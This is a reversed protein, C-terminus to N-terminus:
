HNLPHITPDDDFPNENGALVHEPLDDNDGDVVQVTEFQVTQMDIRTPESEVPQILLDTANQKIIVDRITWHGNVPIAMGMGFGEIRVNEIRAPGHTSPNGVDLGIGSKATGDNFNFVSIDKGFGVIRANTLNLRENYNLLVGDRNGWVTLTDITPELTDIYAPPPSRHFDSEEERGLYHKAHIYRARFGITAGYSENGRVEALPAWWVPVSQRNPILDGNPLSNVPLSVRAANGTDPEIIGDTWFIIGHASAGSAVNDIMSVRNGTLWFGDGDNGYDMLFAGLDPDIANQDDLTFSRNVSRIAINGRMSGIEDGAETYFGAGQLGYSVNNVFDVHSSHNVFGWGPGNFVVSGEVLAPRMSGDNGTRHFHVVYRGRVNSGGIPIITATEPADDGTGDDPFEFHFDSLEITKDTRGLETFRAYKIDVDASMLMIHGRHATAISESTFEVNRTTNAVYVNLDASPANHDLELARDLMIQSGSVAVIRRIEDSEPNDPLTGTIVLQDDVRWGEPASALYLISDGARAHPTIVARHTRAAGHIVTRGKLIAGRSLVKRDAVPGDDVFVIRATVDARVPQVSNGILLSGSCASYLTDLQLETVRDRAFDLTGDIRVTNHRVPVESAVTVTVGEPIFVNSGDIPMAGGWTAPESWNGSRSATHTMLVLEAFDPTNRCHDHQNGVAVTDHGDTHDTGHDTHDAEDFEDEADADEDIEDDTDADEDIENEHDGDHEEAQEEFEEDDDAGEEDDRDDGPDLEDEEEGESEFEIEEKSDIGQLFDLEEADCSTISLTLALTVALKSPFETTMKM